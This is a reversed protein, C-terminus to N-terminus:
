SLQEGCLYSSISVAVHRIAEKAGDNLAFNGRRFNVLILPAHSEAVYLWLRRGVNEDHRAFMNGCEIIERSLIRLEDPSEEKSRFLDRGVFPYGLCAIACNEITIGCGTLGDEMNM